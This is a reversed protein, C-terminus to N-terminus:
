DLVLSHLDFFFFSIMTLGFFFFFFFDIFLLFYCLTVHFLFDFFWICKVFSLGTTRMSIEGRANIRLM